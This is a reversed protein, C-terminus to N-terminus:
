LDPIFKPWLFPNFLLLRPGLSKTLRILQNFTLQFKLLLVIQKQDKPWGQGVWEDQNNWSRDSCDQQWKFQVCWWFGDISPKSRHAVKFSLRMSWSFYNFSFTNNSQDHKYLFTLRVMVFLHQFQFLRRLESATTVPSCAFSKM